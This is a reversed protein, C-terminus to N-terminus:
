RRGEEPIRGNNQGEKSDVKLRVIKAGLVPGDLAVDAGSLRAAQTVRPGGDGKLLRAATPPLTEYSAGRSVVGPARRFLAATLRNSAGAENLAAVVGQLDPASKVRLALPQGTVNQIQAPAGVALVLTSGPPLTEPIELSLTRTLREGRFRSLTCEIEVTQGRRLPGRDYQISELRYRRLDPSVRLQLEIGKIEVPEFRNTWLRGLTQQLELAVALAPDPNGEGAFAMELRLDPLGEEFQVRGTALVTARRDYGINGLLSNAAVVGALVPTLASHKVLEFDYTRSGYAAGEIELRVPIMNARRDTRGVIATVRDDLFTGLERGVTTLKTSGALDALTHLVEASVMPMEIRGVGLFPHGFAYVQGEDIWTVTGTAAISLDGRVLEVGVPSGPRLPSPEVADDRGGGGVIEFRSADLQQALWAHVSRDLGGTFIPTAIPRAAATAAPVSAAGRAADLMTEIPTVGAIPYKPLSGMRYSLAGVLEGDIYVPSGSMGAAIGVRDAVPGELQVLHLDYGPGAFNKYTGIFTLPLEEVATGNLATLAIGRAGPELGPRPVEPEGAAVPLLGSLLLCASAIALPRNM